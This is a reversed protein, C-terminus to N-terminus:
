VAGWQIKKDSLPGVFEFFRDGPCDIQQDEHTQRRVRARELDALKSAYRFRISPKGPDVDIESIEALGAFIQVPDDILTGEAMGDVLEGRVHGEVIMTAPDGEFTDSPPDGDLVIMELFGEVIGTAPDGELIGEQLLGQWITLPKNKRFQALAASVLETTAPLGVTLTTSRTEAAEEVESLGLLWGVGSWTKGDWVREGMGTWLNIAGDAFEAEFFYIPFLIDGQLARAYADTLTRM